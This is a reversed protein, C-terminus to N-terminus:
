SATNEETLDIPDAGRFGNRRLLDSGDDRRYHSVRGDRLEVISGGDMIARVDGDEDLLTTKHAVLIRSGDIFARDLRLRLRQEQLWESLYAHGRRIPPVSAPLGIDPHALTLLTDEDRAQLARLWDVAIRVTLPLRDTRGNVAGM